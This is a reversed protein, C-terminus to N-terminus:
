KSKKLHNRLIIEVDKLVNSLHNLVAYTTSLTKNCKRKQNIELIISDESSM